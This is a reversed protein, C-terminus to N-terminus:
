ELDPSVLNLSKMQKALAPFSSDYQLGTHAKHKHTKQKNAIKNQLLEPSMSWDQPTELCGGTINPNFGLQDRALCTQMSGATSDKPDLDWAREIWWSLMSQVWRHAQSASLPDRLYHLLGLWNPAEESKSNKHPSCILLILVSTALHIISICPITVLSPHVSPSLLRPVSFGMESLPMQQCKEEKSAGWAHQSWVPESGKKFNRIAADWVGSRGSNLPGLHKPM